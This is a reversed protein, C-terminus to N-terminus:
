AALGLRGMRRTHEATLDGFISVSAGPRTSEILRALGARHRLLGQTLGLAEGVVRRGWLALRSALVPDADVFARLEEIALESRRTDDLSAAVLEAAPGSLGGAAARCVDDAFGFGIVNTLLREAWSSAATREDFDDVLDSYGLMVSLPDGGEVAILDLLADRRVVADAAFRSLQLREAVTPAVSADAADREFAVHDFHAVLGLLEIRDAATVQGSTDTTGNIVVAADHGAGGTESMRRDYGARSSVVTRHLREDTARDDRCRAVRFYIARM